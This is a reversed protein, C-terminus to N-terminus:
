QIRSESYKATDSFKTTVTKTKEYNGGFLVPRIVMERVYQSNPLGCHSSYPVDRRAIEEGIIVNKAMPFAAHSPPVILDYVSGVTTIKDAFPKAADVIQKLLNRTMPLPAISIRAGFEVIRWPTGDNFPSGLTFIHKLDPFLPLLAAAEIGGLSHGIIYDIRGHKQLFELVNKMLLETQRQLSSVNLWGFNAVETRFGLLRLYCALDTYARPVSGFGGLILVRESDETSLDIQTARSADASMRRMAHLEYLLGRSLSIM